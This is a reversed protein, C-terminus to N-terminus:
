AKPRSRKPEPVLAVEREEAGRRIKMAYRMGAKALLAGGQRADIGNVELIVDGTMLGAAAAPTDPLVDQITPYNLDAGGDRRFEAVFSVTFGTYGAQHTQM